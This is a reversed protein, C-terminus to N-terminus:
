TTLKTLLGNIGKRLIYYEKSDNDEWFINEIIHNKLRMTYKWVM